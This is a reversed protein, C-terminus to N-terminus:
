GFAWASATIVCLYPLGYTKRVELTVGAKDAADALKAYDAAHIFAYMRDGQCYVNFIRLRRRNALNLFRAAAQPNKQTTDIIEFQHISRLYSIM